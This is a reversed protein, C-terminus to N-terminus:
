FWHKKARSHSRFILYKKLM